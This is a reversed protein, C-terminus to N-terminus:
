VQLTLDLRQWSGLYEPVETLGSQLLSLLVTEVSGDLGGVGVDVKNPEGDIHPFLGHRQDEYFISIDKM